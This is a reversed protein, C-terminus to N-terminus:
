TSTIKPLCACNLILFDIGIFLNYPLPSFIVMDNFASFCKNCNLTLVNYFTRLWGLISPIKRVQFKYCVNFKILM